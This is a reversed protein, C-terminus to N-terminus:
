QQSLGCFPVFPVFLLLVIMDNFVRTNEITDNANPTTNTADVVVADLWGSRAASAAAM